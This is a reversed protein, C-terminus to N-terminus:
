GRRLGLRALLSIAEDLMDDPVFVQENFLVGSRDALIPFPRQFCHAHPWGDIPTGAEIARFTPRQKDQKM